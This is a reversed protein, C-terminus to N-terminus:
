ETILQELVAALGGAMTRGVELVEQHNPRSSAVGTCPNTVLAIAAARIGLRSAAALEPASSMTAVDGWDQLMRVEAKTEYAPGVGCVITGRQWSVRAATAAREIAASLGRDIRLREAHITSAGTSPEDRRALLDRNQLDIVDRAVVLDGADLRRHLAGAASAMVLDTVGSAALWEVLHAVASPDGEYVHRRGMVLTCLCGAISGELVRGTHGEVGCAGVGAIDDFRIERGITMAHAVPDMGSGAIFAFRQANM